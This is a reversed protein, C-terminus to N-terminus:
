TKKAPRIHPPVPALWAVIASFVAAGAAVAFGMSASHLEVVRGSALAGFAVGGSLGTTVWTLAETLRPLPTVLEVLNVATILTPAISLGMIFMGATVHLMTSAFPLPLLSLALLATFLRLRLVPDGVSNRAGILFGALLSGVASVALVWGALSKQGLEDTFAVILIESSGFVFGVGIAAIILSVLTIIPLPEKSAARRRTPEPATTQQFALMWGGILASAAAVGLGLPAYVNLTLFTVLVPGVIFVVEDLIAEWAFATSLLQRDDIAHTWRTRVMNGVQPAVAGTLIAAGITLGLSEGAAAILSVAGTAYLACAILLIPRQGLQDALRGQLPAAFASTLVYIAAILGAKGYSGTSHEVLLVIGLGTMSVPLRGLLGASSFKLAGPTKLARVYAQMM